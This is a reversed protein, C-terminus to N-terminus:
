KFRSKVISGKKKEKKKKKSAFLLTNQPWVDGM